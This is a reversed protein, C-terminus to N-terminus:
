CIYDLHTNDIFCTPQSMVIREELKGNLFTNSFDLQNLSWGRSIAIALVLCITVLKIIPSFTEHYDTGEVQRMGNAVLRAKLREVMGDEKQKVKFVWKNNIVNDIPLCQILEYTNNKVLADFEEAM